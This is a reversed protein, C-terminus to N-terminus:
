GGTNPSKGWVHGQEPDGVSEPATAVGRAERPADPEDERPEPRPAKSAVRYPNYVGHRAYTFCVSVPVPAPTAQETYCRCSKDTGDAAQSSVCLLDPNTQISAGQFVPASWPVGKIIPTHAATWEQATMPQDPKSKSRSASSAAPAGASAPAGAANVQAWASRIVFGLAIVACLALVGAGVGMWIKFPIKRKITHLTASQYLAFIAKPQTWVSESARDKYGSGNPDDVLHPWSYVVSTSTGFKRTVHVHEGVLGRLFSLLQSPQQCTLIFDFGRHRHEALKLVRDDQKRAQDHSGYWKWAEDILVLTGDELDQWDNPDDRTDFLGPQLGEVGIVCVPRVTQARLAARIEEVSLDASDIGVEKLVTELALLTKGAGPVGTILKIPM